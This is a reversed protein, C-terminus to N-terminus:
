GPAYVTVNIHPAQMQGKLGPVGGPKVTHFTCLGDNDTALRGFGRFDPDAIKDQTDAPHDYKGGGDAQWLEIMGNTVPNGDRDLLRVKLQAREGKADPGAMIAAPDDPVLWGPTLAFHFFPGIPQNATHVLDMIM